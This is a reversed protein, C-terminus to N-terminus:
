KDFQLELTKYLDINDLMFRFNCLKFSYVSKIIVM